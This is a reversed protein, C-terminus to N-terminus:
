RVNQKVWSNRIIFPLKISFVNAIVRGQRRRARAPRGIIVGQGAYSLIWPWPGLTSRNLFFPGHTKILVSSFSYPLHKFPDVLFALPHLWM